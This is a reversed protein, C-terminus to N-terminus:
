HDVEATRILKYVIGVALIAGILAAYHTVDFGVQDTGNSNKVIVQVPEMILSRLLGIMAVEVFVTLKIRGVKLYNIEATILTSLTWLLFLIGLSGLFHHVLDGGQFAGVAQNLFEVVVMICTVALSLALM